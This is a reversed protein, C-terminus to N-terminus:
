QLLLLYIIWYDTLHHVMQDFGFVKFFMASGLPWRGLLNPSAKLRDMAFHMAFDLFCLYWLAPNWFWIILFTFIAHVSCHCVLPLVWVWGRKAKGLVMWTSQLFYDAVLHKLQFTILLTFVQELAVVM